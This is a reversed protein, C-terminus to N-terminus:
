KRNSATSAASAATSLNADAPVPYTRALVHGVQTAFNQLLRSDEAPLEVEGQWIQIEGALGWVDLLALVRDPKGTLIGNYPEYAATEMPQGKPQISVTVLSAMYRQQLFRAVGQAIAAQSPSEALITSLEYMLIAERESAQARSLIAQIRGVAVGSVALFIALVLWGELSGVTFTYFPPIFDFDFLLAAALAAAMGPGQGWRATIWVVPILYVLAIVAEGLMARGILRLLITTAVVILVAYLSQVYLRPTFSFYLRKMHQMEPDANEDQSGINLIPFGAYMEILFWILIIGILGQRIYDQLPLFLNALVIAVPISLSLLNRLWLGNHSNKGAM